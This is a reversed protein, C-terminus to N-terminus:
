TRAGWLWRFGARISPRIDNPARQYTWSIGMLALAFMMFYGHPVPKRVHGAWWIELAKPVCYLALEMRRSKHDLLVWLGCLWFSWTLLKPTRIDLLQVYTCGLKWSTLVYLSLFSCSWLVNELYKFVIHRVVPWTKRSRSFLMLAYLAHIPVYVSAARRFGQLYESIGHSFCSQHPHILPCIFLHGDPRWISAFELGKEKCFTYLEEIMPPYMGLSARIGHLVSPHVGSIKLLWRAYSPEIREEYVMIASVIERATMSMLLVDWHKFTSLSAPFLGAANWARIVCDVSRVLSYLTITQRDAPDAFNLSVSAAAGAILSNWVDEKKRVYRLLCTTGKMIASLSGLFLGFSVDLLDSAKFNKPRSLALKFLNVSGKTLSGIIFGRVFVRFV